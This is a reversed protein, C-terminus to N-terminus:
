DGAVVGPVAAAPEDALKEWAPLERERFREVSNLVREPEEDRVLGIRQDEVEEGATPCGRVGDHAEVPLVSPPTPRDRNGVVLDGGVLLLPEDLLLESRSVRVPLRQTDAVVD